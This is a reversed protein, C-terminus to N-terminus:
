QPCRPQSFDIVYWEIEASGTAMARTATLTNASTVELTVSAVGPEDGAAHDTSGSSAGMLSQNSALAVSKWPDVAEEIRVEDSLKGAPLKL